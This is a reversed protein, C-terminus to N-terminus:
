SADMGHSTPNPLFESQNFEIFEGGLAGDNRRNLAGYITKLLEGAADYRCNNIYPDGLHDCRSGYSDTPMAHQADLDRKYSIRSREVYHAYYAALADMVRQPVISDAKGSFLWIRQQALNETPDI